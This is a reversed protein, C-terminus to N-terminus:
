PILDRSESVIRVMKTVSILGNSHAILAAWRQIGPELPARVSKFIGGSGMPKLEISQNTINSLSSNRLPILGGAIVSDELPEKVIIDIDYNSGTLVSDPIGINITINRGGSKLITFDSLLERHIIKEKKTIIALRQKSFLSYKHGSKEENGIVEVDISQRKDKLQKSPKVKWKANPFANIFEKYQKDIAKAIEAEFLNSFQPKNKNNLTNELRNSISRVDITQSFSSPHFILLIFLGSSFTSKLLKQM